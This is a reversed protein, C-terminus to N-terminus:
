RTLEGKEGSQRVAQSDLDLRATPDYESDREEIMAEAMDQARDEDVDARISDLMLDAVSMSPDFEENHM